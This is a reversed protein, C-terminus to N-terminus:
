SRLAIAGPSRSVLRFGCHGSRTDPDNTSRYVCRVHDSQHYCSGGRLARAAKGELDEDAPDHYKTRCWTWVNGVMDMAGCPAGGSPFMGVVSTHGIGTDCMNCRLAVSGDAGWPYARGDTHRAAREWEAESPLGINRASQESLWRCFAVAEYWSVGVRPHNAMRDVAHYDKPGDIAEHTRWRWGAETWYKRGDEGYGGAKIFADYQAVTVPYRSLRYPQTQHVPRDPDGMLFRGAPIEIWGIGPLGDPGLGVGPRPDGLRGLVIGARARVVASVHRDDQVVRLVANITRHQCIATAGGPRVDAVAEGAFVVLEERERRSAHRKRGRLGPLLVALGKALASRRMGAKLLGSVIDSAAEDRQQVVGVYGLTLLCVERWAPENVHALMFRVIPRVDQQGLMAVGVGALYEEFTLHIFGYLSPGRELLLGAYERADALFREAARDTEPEGQAELLRELQRLMEARKVLGSGPSTQHMWLALPALIKLTARTDEIAMPEAPARGLGRARNWTSLLTEVCRHYLEVRREPLATGQRKMLALITLLLPNAALRRVGPSRQVADLLERKEAEANQSAVQGPGRAARELALSWKNVFAAIERDDFDLLTCEVLGEAERRVERYGVIRSTMIFRNGRARHLNYFHIVQQVVTQRMRLDKVEDLGDLLVDAKGSHLSTQLLSAITLEQGLGQFYDQIFQELPVERRDIAHAYGSLPVLFPLRGGPRYDAALELTLHKLFTTKGSGPDGLIVLGGHQELLETLAAPEGFRERTAPPENVSLERGAVEPEGSRRSAAKDGPPLERRAWLPVFLASLELRLPVRDAFGMGRLDLYRYTDQLFKLYTRPDGHPGTVPDLEKFCPALEPHERVLQAFEAGRVQRQHVNSAPVFSGEVGIVLRLDRDLMAAGSIGELDEVKASGTLCLREVWEENELSPVLPQHADTSGLVLVANAVAGRQPYGWIALQRGAFFGARTASPHHLALYAARLPLIAGAESGRTLRMVAIDATKSSLSTLWQLRITRGQHVAEFVEDSPCDEFNHYATLALGDESIFFGTGYFYAMGGQGDPHQGLSIRFTARMLLEQAERPPLAGQAPRPQTMPPKNAKWGCIALRFGTLNM